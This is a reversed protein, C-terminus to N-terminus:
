RGFDGAYPWGINYKGRELALIRNQGGSTPVLNWRKPNIGTDGPKIWRFPITDEATEGPGRITAVLLKGGSSCRVVLSGVPIEISDGALPIEIFQYHHQLAAHNKHKDYM